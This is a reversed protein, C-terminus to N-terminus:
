VRFGLGEISYVTTEMKGTLNLGASGRLLEGQGGGWGDSLDSSLKEALGRSEVDM